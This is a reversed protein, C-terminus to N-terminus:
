EHIYGTAAEVTISKGSDAVQVTYEGGPEGLGSFRMTTPSSLYSIGSQAYICASSVLAASLPGYKTDGCYMAGSSSIVNKNPGTLAKDCTTVDSGANTAISLFMYAPASGSVTVCVTRRQAIAAKQAYRLLSLTEDHFGRANFMTANFMPAAFVALVGLIIIVMILEILTFGHQLSQPRM